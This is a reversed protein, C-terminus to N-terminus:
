PALTIFFEDLQSDFVVSPDEDAARRRVMEKLDEDSAFLIINEAIMWARRRARIASDSPVQRSCLLGFSRKAKPLLYQQLSEVENQGISDVYNKFEVVMMRASFDYKISEWFANGSGIPYIADRRDLGDHTWSQISPPRLPPIFAYNLIDVCIEEFERWGEKGRPLSELREILQRAPESEEVPDIITKILNEAKREADIIAEFREQILPHKGLLQDIVVSDWVEVHPAQSNLLDRLERRFPTSLMLLAKEAGISSLGNSLDTAAKRLFSPPVMKIHKVQAIWRKGDPDEFIWDIGRDPAGPKAFQKLGTYGEAALLAGCLLEFQHWDLKNFDLRM